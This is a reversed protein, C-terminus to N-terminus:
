PTSAATYEFVSETTASGDIKYRLRVYVTSGDVPLNGVTLSTKDSSLVRSRYIDSLEPTSGIYLQWKSVAAGNATWNFTVTAGSLVSGPVPDTIEPDPGAPSAATYQYDLEAFVGDIEYRLRVHITSGDVPLGTVDVSLTSADLVGSSYLDGAGATTGVLLEWATVASGNAGWGFTATDGPLVSGPVPTTLSPEGIIITAATYQYDADTVASDIEYRLRVYVTSGDTPLGSVEASLTSAALTGSSYLDGAGASTGVLLEWSTVASGNDAWGFTATDGPLVSGPVPAVLAPTGSGAATYEVVVESTTGSGAIEYRLRAYVKSGDTPLGSVTLSLKDPTLLRSRYLDSTGPTSGIYLQWKTVDAGNASWSFTVEPGPLTSGAAPDVIAPEGSGPTFATYQYDIESFAGDSEYRLRVYVTSGDTPLGTVTASQSTYALVGSSYLDGAGASTGVLFEWATVAAGNDAWSFEVTDGPLVTGAAPATIGPVGSSNSAATFEYDIRFTVGDVKYRLRAYLTSGDTPLGTVNAFLVDSPLVGSVYLDNGGQSTGMVFSWTTVDAGNASWTFTVASGPLVSGPVPSVIGPQGSVITAATYDYDVSYLIGGIEYILRAHVPSGDTPLGPVTATTTAAALSGSDYLDGTGPATGVLM